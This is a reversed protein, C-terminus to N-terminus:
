HNKLYNYLTCADGCMYRRALNIEFSADKLPLSLSKLLSLLIRNALEVGNESKIIKVIDRNFKFAREAINEPAKDIESLLPDVFSTVAEDTANQAVKDFRASVMEHYVVRKLYDPLSAETVWKVVEDFTDQSIYVDDVAIDNLVVIVKFEDCPFHSLVDKLNKVFTAEDDKDEETLIGEVTLKQKKPPQEVVSELGQQTPSVEVLTEENSIDIVDM